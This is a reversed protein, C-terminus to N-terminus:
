TVSHCAPCRPDGVNRSCLLCVLVAAQDGSSRIDQCKPPGDVSSMCAARRPDRSEASHTEPVLVTGPGGRSNCGIKNLSHELASCNRIGALNVECSDNTWGKGM